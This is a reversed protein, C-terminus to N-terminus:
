LIWFSDGMLPLFCLYERDRDHDRDHDPDPDHDPDHDRDHLM